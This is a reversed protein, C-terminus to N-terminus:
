KSKGHTRKEIEVFLKELIIAIKTKTTEFQPLDKSTYLFFIGAQQEIVNLKEVLAPKEMRYAERVIRKVRNRDVANKFIRTSVGVGFKLTAFSKCSSKDNTVFLDKGSIFFLKLPGSTITKGEKFIKDILKRSKLREDKALTFKKM